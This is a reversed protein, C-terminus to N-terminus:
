MWSVIKPIEVLIDILEEYTIGKIKNRLKIPEIGRAELDPIMSYLNIPLNLLQEMSYSAISIQSTGIVGDHIFVISIQISKKIQIEVIEVLNNMKDNLMTNFGYL